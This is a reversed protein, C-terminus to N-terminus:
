GSLNKSNTYLFLLALVYSKQLHICHVQRNQIHTAFSIFTPNAESPQEALHTAMTSAQELSNAASHQATDWVVIHHPLMSM